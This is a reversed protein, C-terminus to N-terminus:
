CGRLYWSLPVPVPTPLTAAQCVQVVGHPPVLQCCSSSFPQALQALLRWRRHRHLGARRGPRRRGVPLVQDIAAVADALDIRLTPIEVEVVVLVALGLVLRVRPDASPDAIPFPRREFPSKRNRRPDAIRHVEGLFPGDGRGALRQDIVAVGIPCQVGLPGRDHETVGHGAITVVLGCQPHEEGLVGILEGM